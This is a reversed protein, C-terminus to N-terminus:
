RSLEGIVDRKPGMRAASWDTCSCDFMPFGDHHEAVPVVYKAGAQKFLKAWEKADFREAKFMPVFDKYGFKSQPGYVAVHHKAEPSNTRYMNRPYWESGFAPVSYLGWHIFIGFKADRYWEPAEYKELSEWNPRFPGHHGAADVQRLLAARQGDYKSSAKQWIADIAEPDISATPATQSQAQGAPVALLALLFASAITWLSRHPLM